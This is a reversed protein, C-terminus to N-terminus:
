KISKDHDSGAEIENFDIEELVGGWENTFYPYTTNDPGFTSNEMYNHNQYTEVESLDDDTEVITDNDDSSMYTTTDDEDCLYKM